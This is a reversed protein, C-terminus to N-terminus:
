STVLQNKTPGNKQRTDFRPLPDDKGDDLLVYRFTSGYRGTIKGTYGLEVLHDLTRRVQPESWGNVERLEKRTFPVQCMKLEPEMPKRADYKETVLAIIDALLARGTPSVDDLDRVFADRGLEVALDVDAQTAQVYEMTTGDPRKLTGTKRQYQHLLVIAKVLSYFKGNEGRVQLRLEPLPVALNDPFTVTLPKLLRQMNHHLTTIGSEGCCTEYWRHSNKTRQAYLIQKTQEPTEDITLILFRRKTEEDLGDSKTTSVFVVVPGEVTYEDTSLKGTKPDTRTTAVALKQSSILTRVSYIAEQLGGEEEIALVKNKLANRDRYFLSQGTLRTLQIASEPSVFKCAANQLGTKGASPRSLILIALPDLLLRSITAIYVILKNIREGIYGIADFDEVIRKLLDKSKLTALAETKEADSMAPVTVASSNERMAIREAELAAIIQMLEAM